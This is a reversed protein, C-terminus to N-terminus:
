TRSEIRSDKRRRRWRETTMPHLLRHHLHLHLCQASTLGSAIHKSQASFQKKTYLSSRDKAQHKMFSKSSIGPSQIPARLRIQVVLSGNGFLESPQMMISPRIDDDTIKAEAIQIGLDPLRM